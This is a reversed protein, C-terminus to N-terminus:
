RAKRIELKDPDQRSDWVSLVFVSDETFQYFLQYDRVIKIRVDKLDSKKGILPNNGVLHLSEKILSQLKKSYQKSKNRNNWYEFIQKRDEQAIKTWIIRRAM